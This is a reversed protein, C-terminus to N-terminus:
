HQNQITLLSFICLVLLVLKTKLDRYIFFIPEAFSQTKIDFFSYFLSELFELFDLWLIGYIFHLCPGGELVFVLLSVALMILCLLTGKGKVQVYVSTTEDRFSRDSLLTREIGCQYLGEDEKKLENMIVTFEKSSKNDSISKREKESNHNTTVLTSCSFLTEKCWYKKHDGYRKDYPCEVTVSTGVLGKMTEPGSLHGESPLELM